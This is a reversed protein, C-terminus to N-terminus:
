SAPWNTADGLGVIGEDTFVEVFVWSSKYRPNRHDRVLHCKVDTIKM